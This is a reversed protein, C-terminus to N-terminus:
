KKDRIKKIEEENMKAVRMNAKQNKIAAIVFILSLLVTLMLLYNVEHLMFYRMVQFTVITAILLVIKIILKKSKLISSKEEKVYEEYKKM